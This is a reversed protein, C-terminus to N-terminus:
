KIKEVVWVKIGYSGNSTHTTSEAYNLTSNITQTAVNGVTIIKHKARPAGNLRGKIKIKVGKIKSFNSMLFLTLTKKLFTIFFKQRKNRILQTSVFHSLLNVSNIKYMSLFILNIGEEFFKTYKFKQLFM